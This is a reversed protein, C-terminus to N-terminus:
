TNCSVKSHVSHPATTQSQQQICVVDTEGACSHLLGPPADFWQFVGLVTSSVHLMGLVSYASSPLEVVPGVEVVM